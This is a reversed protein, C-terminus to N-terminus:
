RSFDGPPSGDREDGMSNDPWQSGAPPTRGHVLNQEPVNSQLHFHAGGPLFATLSLGATGVQGQPLGQVFGPVSPQVLRDVVAGDVAPDFLQAFAPGKRQQLFRSQQHASLHQLV